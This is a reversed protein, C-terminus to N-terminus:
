NKKTKLEVIFLEHYKYILNIGTPRSQIIVTINSQNIIDDTFQEM